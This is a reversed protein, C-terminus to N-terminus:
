WQALALAVEVGRASSVGGNRGVCREGIKTWQARVEFQGVFTWGLKLSELAVFCVGRTIIAFLGFALTETVIWNELLLRSGSGNLGRRIAIGM